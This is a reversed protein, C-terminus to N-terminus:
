MISRSTTQQTGDSASSIPPMIIAMRNSPLKYTEDLQTEGNTATHLNNKSLDSKAQVATPSFTTTGTNEWAQKRLESIAEAQNKLDEKLKAM